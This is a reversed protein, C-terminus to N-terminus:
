VIGLELLGMHGAFSQVVVDNTQAFAGCFALPLGGRLLEWCAAAFPSLKPDCPGSRKESNRESGGETKGAPTLPELEECNSPCM